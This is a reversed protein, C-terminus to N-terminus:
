SIRSGLPCVHITVHLCANHSISMIVKNDSKAIKYLCSKNSADYNQSNPSRGHKDSDLIDYYVTFYGPKGEFPQIMTDLVALM